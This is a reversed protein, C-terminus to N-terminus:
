YRRWEWLARHCLLGDNTVCRTCTYPCYKDQKLPWPEKHVSDTLSTLHPDSTPYTVIIKREISEGCNYLLVHSFICIFDPSSMSEPAQTLQFSSLLVFVLGVLEICMKYYRSHWHVCATLAALGNNRLLPCQPEPLSMWPWPWMALLLYLQSKFVPQRTGSNM